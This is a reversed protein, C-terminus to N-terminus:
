KSLRRASNREEIDSPQSKSYADPSSRSGLLLGFKPAVYVELLRVALYYVGSFVVTLLGTLAAEFEPDVTVNNATFMGLVAGVIIPVVTRVFSFWVLAAAAKVKKM